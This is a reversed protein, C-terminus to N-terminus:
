WGEPKGKQQRISEKGVRYVPTTVPHECYAMIGKIIKEYEM